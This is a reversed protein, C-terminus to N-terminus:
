GARCQRSGLSYYCQVCPGLRIDLPVEPAGVATDPQPYQKWVACRSHCCLSRDIREFVLRSKGGSASTMLDFADDTLIGVMRPVMASSAVRYKRTINVEWKTSSIVRIRPRTLAVAGRGITGLSTWHTGRWSDIWSRGALYATM